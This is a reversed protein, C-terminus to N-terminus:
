LINKNSYNDWLIQLSNRLNVVGPWKVLEDVPASEIGPKSIYHSRLDTMGSYIIESLEQPNLNSQQSLLVAAIGTVMPASMSTGSMTTYEDGPTTSYIFSGPALIDVTQQGYNSFPSILTEDFYPTTSGVTIYNDLKQEDNLFPLPYSAKKDINLYDNGAAHVILVNNDKAYRLAKQVEQYHRSYYKGFSMNIINAGNDVAYYIANVIDKDREDGNPIARLPMIKVNQAIGTMGINNSRNAAIIGAVHTGHTPNPGVVDNNGYNKDYFDTVDDGIILSRADSNINYHIEYQTKYLNKQEIFYDLSMGQNLYNLLAEQANYPMSSEAFVPLIKLEDISINEATIGYVDLIELSSRFIKEDLEYEKYLKKARLIKTKINQSLSNFTAQEEDSLSEFSQSLLYKYQRTSSLTDAKLQHFPSGSILRLVPDGSSTQENEFSAAGQSNGLFNWGMVDDVFGNQDDDYNNNPIEAQNVWIKGQLDAHNVDVGSDIVAVIIEEGESIEQYDEYALDSSIGLIFDVDYDRHHWNHPVLLNNERFLITGKANKYTKIERTKAKLNQSSVTTFISLITLLYSPRLM